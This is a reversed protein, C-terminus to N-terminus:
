AECTDFIRIVDYGLANGTLRASIKPCHGLIQHLNNINIMNNSNRKRTEVTTAGFDRLVPRM